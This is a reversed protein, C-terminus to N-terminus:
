IFQFVGGLNNLVKDAQSFDGDMTEKGPIAFVTMGAAVAAAVGIPSDELVLCDNPDVSIAKATLLYVDPAPKGRKVNEASYLADFFDGVELAKVIINITAIQSSSAIAMKIGVRRLDNLLDMLGPRPLIKDLLQRTIVQKQDFLEEATIPLQYRTVMDVACDMDTKGLYLKINDEETFQKGYKQFVQDFAQQHIPESDVMLGDMDFIVAKFM